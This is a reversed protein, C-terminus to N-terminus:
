AAFAVMDVEIAVDKPLRAVQVAARAPPDELFFTSYVENVKAFDDM